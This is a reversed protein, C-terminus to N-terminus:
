CYSWRTVNDEVAAQEGGMSGSNDMIFVVDVLKVGGGGGPPTVHFNDEQLKGDEYVQFNSAQLTDGDIGSLAIDLYIYSFNQPSLSVLKTELPSSNVSLGGFILVVSLIVAFTTILKKCSM